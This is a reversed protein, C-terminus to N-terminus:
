FGLIGTPMRVGLVDLFLYSLGVALPTGYALSRLISQSGLARVVVVAFVVSSVYQGLLPLAVVYGLTALVLIVLRRRRDGEPLEVAGSVATTLGAELCTLISAVICGLGVIVPFVGAGPQDMTGMPLELFAYATYALGLLFGIAGAVLRGRRKGDLSRRAESGSSLSSSSM